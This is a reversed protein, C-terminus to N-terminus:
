RTAPPAAAFAGAPDDEDNADLAVPAKPVVHGNVPTADVADDDHGVVDDVAEDIAIGRGDFEVRVANLVDHNLEVHRLVHTVSEAHVVGAAGGDAILANWENADVGEFPPRATPEITM